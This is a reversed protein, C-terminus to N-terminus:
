KRRSRSIVLMYRNFFRWLYQTWSRGSFCARLQLQCLTSAAEEFRIRWLILPHKIMSFYSALHCVLSVVSACAGTARKTMSWRLLRHLVLLCCGRYHHSCLRRIVRRSASSCQNSTEDAMCSDELQGVKLFEDTYWTTLRKLAFTLLMVVTWM